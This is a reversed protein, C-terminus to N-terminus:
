SDLGSPDDPIGSALAAANVLAYRQSAFTCAMTLLADATDPAVHDRMSLALCDAALAALADAQHLQGDAVQQVVTEVFAAVAALHPDSM